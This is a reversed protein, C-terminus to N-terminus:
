HLGLGPFLDMGKEEAIEHANLLLGYLVQEEIIGDEDVASRLLELLTTGYFGSDEIEEAMIFFSSPDQNFLAALIIWINLANIRHGGHDDLCRLIVPFDHPYTMALGVLVDRADPVPDSLITIVGEVIEEPVEGRLEKGKSLFNEVQTLISAYYSAM